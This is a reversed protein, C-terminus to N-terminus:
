FALTEDDEPILLERAGTARLREPTFYERCDERTEICHNFADLHVLVYRPEPNERLTKEVDLLNMVIRDSHLFKPSGANLVVVETRYRAIHERISEHYITDGAFYVVPEGPAALVYGSAPAMSEGVAGTGHLADLRTVTIGEWLLSDEVPHVDRFGWERFTGADQPQCLVPTEPDLLERARADFHDRHLHTSLLTEAQLLLGLPTRLETLPNPRKCPTLPIPPLSGKEAFVPDVLFSRHAYQLLSTAHRVHRLKM